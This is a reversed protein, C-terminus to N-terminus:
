KMLCIISEMIKDVSFYIYKNPNYHGTLFINNPKPIQFKKSVFIPFCKIKEVKGVLNLNSKSSIQNLLNKKFVDENLLDKNKIEKEILEKRIIAIFNFEKNQNIPYIM